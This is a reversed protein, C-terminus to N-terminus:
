RAGVQATRARYADVAVRAIEDPDLGEDRLWRAPHTESGAGSLALWLRRAAEDAAGPDVDRLHRLLVATAVLGSYRVMQRPADLDRVWLARAGEAHVLVYRIMAAATADDPSTPRPAYADLPDPKM